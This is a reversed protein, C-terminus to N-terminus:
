RLAAHAQEALVGFSLREGTVQELLEGAGLSQGLEWMERLLSGAQRRRFWDSGFRRSLHDSLQAEFGWARLYCTCYFGGDVDELHDSSSHEIGTAERLLTAYRDGMWDLPAASQLELEYALKAAYRRVFFLKILAQLREFERVPAFDLRAQLWERRAVLHELLFAFGETVANDGLLRQEAPLGARTHAFHETHGAEHFLAQYDDPGGHPLIVLVVRDPVRVPACFARPVKGPRAEVDLVVNRQADLDIDMDGLTARLAPVALAPPFGPDFERARVLRAIDAPTAQELGVGVRRRLEADMLERYLDETDSLFASTDAHLGRPDYGFREYLDLVSGAGLDATLERERVVSERLIPNLERETVDCRRRYLDLRRSRDPENMLRSRVARYPVPEGDFEVTLAAEANAAQETLHKLGDAVYTECSNRWLERPDGREFMTRAQELTGMAAHRLYIPELELSPKLGAMHRYHEEMLEANMQELEERYATVDLPM